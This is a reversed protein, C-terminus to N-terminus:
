RRMCTVNTKKNAQIPRIARLSAQAHTALEVGGTALALVGELIQVRRSSTTTCYVCIYVKVQALVEANIQVQLVGLNSSHTRVGSPGPM